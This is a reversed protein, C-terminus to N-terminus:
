FPQEKEMAAIMAEVAQTTIDQLGEALIQSPADDKLVIPREVVGTHTAAYLQDGGRTLVYRIKMQTKWTSLGVKDLRIELIQGSAVFGQGATKLSSAYACECGRSKMEELLARTAWDGVDSGPSYASTEDRTGLVQPSPRQDEFAAITMDWRCWPVDSLKAPYTLPVVSSGACGALALLLLLAVAHVRSPFHPFLSKM